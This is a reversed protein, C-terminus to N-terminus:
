KSSLFLAARARVDIWSSTNHLRLHMGHWTSFKRKFNTCCSCVVANFSFWKKRHVKKGNGYIIYAFTFVSIQIHSSSLYFPRKEETERRNANFTTLTCHAYPWIGFCLKFHSGSQWKTWVWVAATVVYGGCLQFLWFVNWVYSSIRSINFTFM